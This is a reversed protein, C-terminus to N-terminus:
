ILVNRVPLGPNLACLRGRRSGKAQAVEVQSVEEPLTRPRALEASACRKDAVRNKVWVSDLSASNASYDPCLWQRSRTPAVAASHAAFAPRTAHRPRRRWQAVSSLLLSHRARPAACKEWKRQLSESRFALTAEWSGAGVVRTCNVCEIWNCVAQVLVLFNPIRLYSWQSGAGCM